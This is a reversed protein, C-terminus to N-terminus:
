INSTVQITRNTRRPNTSDCTNYGNVTFISGADDDKEVQIDACTNETPFLITFTTTGSNTDVSSIWNSQAPAPLTIQMGECTVNSEPYAVPDAVWPYIYATSTPFIMYPMGNQPNGRDWYLACEIARDAIAFAKASDKLYSALIIEKISIAYVGFAIGLVISSILVSLLLIYGGRDCASKSIFPIQTM